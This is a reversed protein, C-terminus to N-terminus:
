YITKETNILNTRQSIKTIKSIKSVTKDIKDVESNMKRILNEIKRFIVTKNKISNDTEIAMKIEKESDEEVDESIEEEIVEVILDEEIEEILDVIPLVIIGKELVIVRNTIVMIMDTKTETLVGTEQNIVKETRIITTEIKTGTIMMITGILITKIGTEMIVKTGIITMKTGTTIIIMEIGIIVTEIIKIGVRMRKERGITEMMMAVLIIIIEVESVIEARSTKNIGVELTEIERKIAIKILFLIKITGAEETKTIIRGIIMQTEKVKEIGDEQFNKKKGTVMRAQGQFNQLTKEKGKISKISTNKINKRKRTEAEVEKLSKM